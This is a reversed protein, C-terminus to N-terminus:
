SEQKFREIMDALQHSQRSLALAADNAQSAGSIAHGARDSIHVINRNIDESVASQEEVATAIQTNLDNIGSIQEAIHQLAEIAASVNHQSETTTQQSQEMVRVASTVAQNLNEILHQIQETSQQTKSALSRVEDAVVAFGRGHEGARAAEIAANLALLNTQDAINKIVDIIQEINKTDQDLQSVVNAVNQVAQNLEGLSDVAKSASDVGSLSQENAERAQVAAYAANNAVEQVSATMETMATAVLDTEAAQEKIAVNIDAISKASDDSDQEIEHATERLRGLITKLKAEQMIAPLQLLGIEDSRGTYVLAMVPDDITQRAKAAAQNLPKFTWSGIIFFVLLSVVLGALSSMMSPLTLLNTTLAGAFLALLFQFLVRHKLSLHELLSSTRVSKGANIRHYLTEARKVQDRDPKFRVSEYGTVQGNEHIPSVYADVWYHDGNKCRNKVIGMWHKKAQVQRWLEAFAAPPMDPHRIVNHNKHLLEEESFGSIDLFTKNFSTIAGKMDTTSIIEEGDPFPRETNTIPLNKKM